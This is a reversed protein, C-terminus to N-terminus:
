EDAPARKRLHERASELIASYDSRFPEALESELRGLLAHIAVWDSGETLLQELRGTDDLEHSLWEFLVLAEDRGLILAVEDRPDLM